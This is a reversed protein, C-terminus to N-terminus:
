RPLVREYLHHAADFALYALGRLGFPYIRVSVCAREERTWVRTWPEALGLFEYSRLGREAAYRITDRTLLIGPEDSNDRLKERLRAVHM